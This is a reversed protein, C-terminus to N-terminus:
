FYGPNICRSSSLQERRLHEEEWGRKEPVCLTPNSGGAWRPLSCSSPKWSLLPQPAPSGLVLFPSPRPERPAALHLAAPAPSSISLRWSSERRLEWPWASEKRWGLAAPPCLRPNDTSTSGGECHLSLSFTTFSKEQVFDTSRLSDRTLYM